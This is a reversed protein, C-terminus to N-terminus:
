CWLSRTSSRYWVSFSNVCFHLVLQCVTVTVWLEGYDSNVVELVLYQQV